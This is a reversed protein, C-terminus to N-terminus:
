LPPLLRLPFFWVLFAAVSFLSLLHRWLTKKEQRRSPPPTDPLLRGAAFLDIEEPPAAAPAPPEPQRKQRQERPDFASLAPFRLEELAAEIQKRSRGDTQGANHLDAVLCMTLDPFQRSFEIVSWLQSVSPTKGAAKGSLTQGADAASQTEHSLM